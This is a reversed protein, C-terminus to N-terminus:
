FERLLLKCRRPAVRIVHNCLTRRLRVVEDDLKINMVTSFPEEDNKSTHTTSTTDPKACPKAAFIPNTQIRDAPPPPRPEPPPSHARLLAAVALAMGPESKARPKVSDDDTKVLPKFAKAIKNAMITQKGKAKWLGSVKERWNADAAAEEAVM